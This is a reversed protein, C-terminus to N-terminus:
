SRLTRKPDDLATALKRFSSFIPLQSSYSSRVGMMELHLINMHNVNFIDIGDHGEVEMFQEEVVEPLPLYFVSVVDRTRDGGRLRKVEERFGGMKTHTLPYKAQLGDARYVGSVGYPALLFDPWVQTIKVFKGGPCITM